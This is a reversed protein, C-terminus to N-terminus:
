QNSNKTLIMDVFIIDWGAYSGNSLARYIFGSYYQTGVMEPMVISHMSPTIGPASKLEIQLKTRTSTIQAAPLSNDLTTSFDGTGSEKDYSAYFYKQGDGRKPQTLEQFPISLTKAGADFTAMVNLREEVTAQVNGFNSIVLKDAGEKTIEVQYSLVAGTLYNDVVQISKGTAQWTGVLDDVTFEVPEDAQQVISYVESFGDMSVTLEARRSKSTPNPSILFEVGTDGSGSEPTFSLWEVGADKSITWGTNSELTLTLSHAAADVEGPLGKLRVYPLTVVPQTIVVEMSTEATAVDLSIKRPRSSSNASITVTATGDGVGSLPSVEIGEDNGRTSITWGGSTFITLIAQGGHPTLASQDCEVRLSPTDDGKDCSVFSATATLSAM